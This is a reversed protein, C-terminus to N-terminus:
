AHRVNAYEAIDRDITVIDDMSLDHISGHGTIRAFTRLEAALADFYNRVREAGIEPDLRATLEPDHTAIGM